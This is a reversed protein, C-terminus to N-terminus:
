WTPRARSRSWSSAYVTETTKDHVAEVEGAQVSTMAHPAKIAPLDSPAPRAPMRDLGAKMAGPLHGPGPADVGVGAEASLEATRPGFADNNLHDRDPLGQGRRRAICRGMRWNSSHLESHDQDMFSKSHQMTRVNHHHRLSRYSALGTAVSKHGGDMAVLNINVYVLLDSRGGAPQDGGRRGPRDGGPILADPDEADHQPLLGHPAFADYVRDGVAHRLEDETMRRHLALAVILVVDDVGAAAALDLVAEIVRQRNDPRRMPPLPLSIDDFAITLKMGPSLLEPLPQSDGVPHLLAHRIAADIDELAGPARAPLHHPQAPPCSRWPSARGTPGPDAAHLPRRRPRLRAHPNVTMRGAGGTSPRLRSRRDATAPRAAASREAAHPHEDPEKRRSALDFAVKVAGRRGANAAHDIAETYRELPYTATVLRDLDASAVLEFALDFTRRESRGAGTETGYAYAGTMTIERQWLGTLDVRVQGPMGLVVIRGPGVVALADTLASPEWATSSSDAGGTLPSTATVSPWSGTARRVARRLEGPEVVTTAGLERPWAGSSPTSPSAVIAGTPTSRAIAAITM